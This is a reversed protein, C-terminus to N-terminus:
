NQNNTMSLRSQPRTSIRLLDKGRLAREVRQVRGIRSHTSTALSWELLIRVPIYSPLINLMDQGSDQDKEESDQDHDGDDGVGEGSDEPLHLCDPGHLSCTSNQIMLLFMQVNNRESKLQEMEAAM